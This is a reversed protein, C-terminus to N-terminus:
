PCSWPPALWASWAWYRLLATCLTPRSSPATEGAWAVGWGLSVQVLPSDEAPRPPLQPRPDGQATEAGPPVRGAAARRQWGRGARFTTPERVPEPSGAVPRSVRPSSLGTSNKTPEVPAWGVGLELGAASPWAPRWGQASGDGAESVSVPFIRSFYNAWNDRAAVVIRKKVSDEATDLSDLGM